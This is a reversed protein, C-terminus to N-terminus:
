NRMPRRRPSWGSTALGRALDALGRFEDSRRSPKPVPLRAMLATTVHTTVNLRVLYNAVLSNLLGLLCWQEDADLASKLVFVTHTSISGKPLLGAILTLRNTAGAVDRYAIRDRAFSVAPDILRAAAERRIVHSDREAVGPVAGRAQGRRDAALVTSGPRPRQSHRGM